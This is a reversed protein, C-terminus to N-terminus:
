ARVFHSRSYQRYNETFPIHEVVFGRGASRYQVGSGYGSSNTFIQGNFAVFVINKSEHLFVFLSSLHLHKLFFFEELLVFLHLLHFNSKKPVKAGGHLITRIFAHARTGVSFMSFISSLQLQMTIFSIVAQEKNGGSELTLSV